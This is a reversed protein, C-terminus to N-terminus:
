RRLSNVPIAKGSVTGTLELLIDKKGNPPITIELGSEEIREYKEPILYTITPNKPVIIIDERASDLIEQESLGSDTKVKMVTVTYEGPFIGDNPDLTTLTFKGQGDTIATATRSNETKDKPVFAVTADAVIEGNFTVVGGAPVLGALRKSNCGACVGLSILLSIILVRFLVETKM